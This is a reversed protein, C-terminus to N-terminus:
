KTTMVLALLRAKLNIELVSAVSIVIGISPSLVVDSLEEAVNGRREDELEKKFNTALRVNHIHEREVYWLEVLISVDLNERYVLQVYCAM